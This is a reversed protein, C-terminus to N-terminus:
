RFMIMKAQISEKWADVLCKSCVRLVEDQVLESHNEVAKITPALLYQLLPAIYNIEHIKDQFNIPM